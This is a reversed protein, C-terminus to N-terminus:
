EKGELDDLFDIAIILKCTKSLKYSQRVNDYLRNELMTKFGDPLSKWNKILEDTPLADPFKKKEEFDEFFGELALDYSSIFSIYFLTDPMYECHEVLYYYEAQNASIILVSEPFELTAFENPRKDAEKIKKAEDLTFLNITIDLPTYEFFENPTVNFFKCLKDLTDYRIQLATNERIKLIAANSLGLQENLDKVRVKKIKMLENLRNRIM